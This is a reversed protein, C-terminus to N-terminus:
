KRLIAGLNGQKQGLMMTNELFFFTKVYNVPCSAPFIGLFRSPQYALNSEKQNISRLGSYFGRHGVVPGHGM